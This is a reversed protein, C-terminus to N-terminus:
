VLTVGKVVEDAKRGAAKGRARVLGLMRAEECFRVFTAHLRDEDVAPGVVEKERDDNGQRRRKKGPGAEEDAVGNAEAEVVTDADEGPEPTANGDVDVDPEHDTDRSLSGKYGQLWDWLNVNKGAGKWLGFLIELDKLDGKEVKASDSANGAIEVPIPSPSPSPKRRKSTKRPTTKPSAASASAPHVTIHGNSHHEAPVAPPLHDTFLSPASLAQLISIRPAPDM